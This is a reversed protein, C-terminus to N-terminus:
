GTVGESVWGEVVCVRQRLLKKVEENLKQRVTSGAIGTMPMDHSQQFQMVARIMRPGYFENIPLQANITLNLSHQLNRILQRARECTPQDVKGTIPLGFQAQFERVAAETYLDLLNGHNGNLGDPGLSYGLNHLMTKFQSISYTM